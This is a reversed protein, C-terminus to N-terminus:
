VNEIAASNLGSSIAISGTCIYVGLVFFIAGREWVGFSSFAMPQERIRGLYDVAVTMVVLVGSSVIAAITIRRAWRRENMLGYGSAFM